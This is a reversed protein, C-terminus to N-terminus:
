DRPKPCLRLIIPFLSLKLPETKRRAIQHPTISGERGRGNGPRSPEKHKSRGM